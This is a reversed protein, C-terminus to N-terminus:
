RGMAQRQSQCFGAWDLPLDARRATDADILRFRGPHRLALWVTLLPWTALDLRQLIALCHEFRVKIASKGHMLGNVAIAIARRDDEDELAADFRERDSEPFGDVLDLAERFHDAVRDFQSRSIMPGLVQADLRVRILADADVAAPTPQSDSNMRIPVASDIRALAWNLTTTASRLSGAKLHDAILTLIAAKALTSTM